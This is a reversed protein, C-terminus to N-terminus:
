STPQRPVASPQEAAAHPGPAESAGESLRLKVNTVVGPEVVFEAEYSAYGGKYLVITHRGEDLWLFSPVGDFDRAVGVYTGDVFVEAKRPKVDLDLAGVDLAQALAPNMGGTERYPGYHPFGVYPYFYPSYFPHTWLGGYLGTHFGVSVRPVLVVRRGGRRGRAEASEVFLALLLAVALVVLTKRSPMPTRNAAEHKNRAETM